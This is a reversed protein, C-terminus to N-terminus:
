HEDGTPREAQVSADSVALSIIADAMSLAGGAVEIKREDELGILNPSQGAVIIAAVLVRVVTVGMADQGGAEIMAVLNKIDM